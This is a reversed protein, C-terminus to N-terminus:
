CGILWVVQSFTVGWQLWQLWQRSNLNAMLMSHQAKAKQLQPDAPRTDECLKFEILHSEGQNPYIGQRLCATSLKPQPNNLSLLV